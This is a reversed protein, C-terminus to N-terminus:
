QIRELFRCQLTFQVYPRSDSGAQQPTLSSLRLGNTPVLNSRFYEQRILAEKFRNVQDGQNQSFDRADLTMMIQETVTPPRGPVVGFNNTKAATGGRSAYSQEIQLRTLQVNPVYTQQLGNLLNGQLFRAASLQQLADMRQWAEATKKQSTQVQNFENTHSQIENQIQSLKQKALMYTLWVSSFWVLSLAVLFAGGFISRKVPDRRRMDEEALAETLLNIRIPM